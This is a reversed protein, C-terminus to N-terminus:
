LTIYPLMRKLRKEGIGNVSELSGLSQFGGMEDRFRVISRATKEGVGPIAVLDSWGASNISIPVGLLLLKGGSMRGKIVKGNDEILISDGNTIIENGAASEFPADEASYVAGIGDRVIEVYEVDKSENRNEAMSYNKKEKVPLAFLVMFFVATLLLFERAM